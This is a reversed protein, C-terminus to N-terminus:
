PEQQESSLQLEWLKAYSVFRSWVQYMAYIIGESGDLFAAKRIMRLYFERWMATIFRLINMKPHNANFMLQAEVDSWKNTKKVMDEFNDHKEHLLPSNLYGLKGEYIPQEHLIGEWKNFSDRKFLRIVYDPWWGGHKLEKGLIINRRPIAFCSYKNDEGDVIKLIEKILKADAREDADLFLIWDSDIHKTGENKWDSYSGKKYRVIKANYKKAIKNTKDTSGTDVLIIEDVWKVSKLCDGINDEENRAAVVVGMGHKKTM